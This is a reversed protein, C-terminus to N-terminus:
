VSYPNQLKCVTSLVSGVHLLFLTDVVCPLCLSDVYLLPTSLALYIRKIISYLHIVQVHRHIVLCGQFVRAVNGTLGITAILLGLELISLDTVLLPCSRM